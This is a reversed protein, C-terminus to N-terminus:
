QAPGRPRTGTQTTPPSKALARRLSDARVAILRGAKQWEELLDSLSLSRAASTKPIVVLDIGNPFWQPYRRFVERMLRKARNRAVANGFKRTVTIGLRAPRDDPRAALLVICSPLTIRSGAGQVTLFESRKRLRRDKAFTQTVLDAQLV